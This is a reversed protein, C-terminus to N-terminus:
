TIKTLYNVDSLHFYHSTAFLLTQFKLFSIKKSNVSYRNQQNQKVKMQLRLYLEKM